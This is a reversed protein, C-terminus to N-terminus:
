ADILEEQNPVNLSEIVKHSQIIAQASMKYFISKQLMDFFDDREKPSLSSIDKKSPMGFDKYIQRSKYERKVRIKEPAKTPLLSQVEQSPKYVYKNGNMGIKHGDKKLRFILPYISSLKIKVRDSLERASLGEPLSEVLAKIVLEKKVM